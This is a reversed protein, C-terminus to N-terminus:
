HNHHTFKGAATLIRVENPNALLIFPADFGGCDEDSDPPRVIRGYVLAWHNPVTVTPSHANPGFQPEEHSGLNSTKRVEALKSAITAPDIRSRLLPAKPMGEEWRTWVQIKNSCTHGQIVVPHPCGDQSLFDYSDILSASREMRGVVAAATNTYHDLDGIVECVTLVPTPQKTNQQAFAVAAAVSIQLAVAKM